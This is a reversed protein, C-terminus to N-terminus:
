RAWRSRPSAPFLATVREAEILELASAPDFHTM